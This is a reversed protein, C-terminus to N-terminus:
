RKKQAAGGGKIKSKVHLHCASKSCHFKYVTVTLSRLCFCIFQLTLAVPEKYLQQISIVM